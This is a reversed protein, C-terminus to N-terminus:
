IKLIGGGFREAEIVPPELRRVEVSLGTEPQAANGAFGGGKGV